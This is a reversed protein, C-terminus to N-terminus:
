EQSVAAGSAGGGVWITASLASPLSAHHSQFPACHEDSCAQAPWPLHQATQPIGGYFTRCLPDTRLLWLLAQEADGCAFVAVRDSDVAVSGNLNRRQFRTWDILLLFGALAKQAQRMCPTLSHPKRNPWRMGGGAAGSAFHACQMHRFYEDDFPEPLTMGHDKFTHIPGHESDFLPRTDSIEALADRILRGTSLAPAITDEPFDITGEEYLHITAFDLLPHRYVPDNLWPKWLLEPGFISVTQLHARGHLRLELQRLFPSVDEIFDEFCRHHDQCQFPHM